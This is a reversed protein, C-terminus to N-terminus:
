PLTYAFVISPTVGVPASVNVTLLGNAALAVGAPLRASGSDLAFSGGRAVGDPLTDNLDVTTASGAVFAMSQLVNWVPLPPPPAPPLEVSATQADAGGGCSALLVQSGLLGCMLMTRRTVKSM